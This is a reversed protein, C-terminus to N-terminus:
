EKAGHAKLLEAIKKQNNEQAVYLATWGDENKAGVDAGRRLLLEVIKHDRSWCLPPAEDYTRGWVFSWFTNWARVCWGTKVKPPRCGSAEMLATWGDCTRADVDAGKDLLLEVAELQQSQVASMLITWGTTTKANIDAGRNALYRVQKLDGRRVAEM